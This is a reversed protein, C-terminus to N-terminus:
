FYNDSIHRSRKKSSIRYVYDRTVNNLKAIEGNSKGEKISRCISHVVEDSYKNLPNNEGYSFNTHLGTRVAHQLNEKHTVWELNSAAINTKIGDIHNVELGEIKPKPVFLTAVIVHVLRTKGRFSMQYYGKNNIQFRCLASINHSYVRGMNSILYHEEYEKWLEGELDGEYQNVQERVLRLSHLKNAVKSSNRNLQRGLEANSLTEFNERLFVEEEDTWIKREFAKM